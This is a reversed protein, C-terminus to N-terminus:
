SAPGDKPAAKPETMPDARPEGRPEGRPMPETKPMPAPRMAEGAAPTPAPDTLVADVVHIIGNSAVVDSSMIGAGEIRLGDGNAVRLTPGALTAPTAQVATLDRSHVRGAVVHRQLLTTLEAKNEPRLLRELAGAPLKAFAGNTPAFVTFPGPGKLADAMGAAQLAANLTSFQEAGAVQTAIDPAGVTPQVSASAPAAKPTAQRGAGDAFAPGPLTTSTAAIAGLISAIAANKM